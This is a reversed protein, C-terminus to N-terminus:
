HPQRLCPSNLTRGGDIITVDAGGVSSINMDAEILLNENYNAPNPHVEIDFDIPNVTVSDIAAQITTFDYNGGPGVTVVAFALSFLIFLYKVM